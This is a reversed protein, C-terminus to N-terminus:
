KHVVMMKRTIMKEGARFSYLYTGSELGSVNYKLTHQGQQQIEHIVHEAEKGLIDSITLQVLCVRDLYYTFYTEGTTPNPYNQAISSPLSKEHRGVATAGYIEFVIRKTITNQPLMCKHSRLVIPINKDGSSLGSLDISVSIELSDSGPLIFSAPDISVYDYSTSITVSDEGEGDNYIYFSTDISGINPLQGLDITSEDKLFTHPRLTNLLNQENIAYLKGDACGFYIIGDLYLPTEVWGNV